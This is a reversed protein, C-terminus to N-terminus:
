FADAEMLDRLTDLDNQAQRKMMTVLLPQALKFFGGPEADVTQDVRTAGDVSRVAWTLTVPFPATTALAYRRGAEFETVKSDAELRRGLMKATSHYTTGVGTPGDSTKTVTQMNSSWKPSNSADSLVAFVEELPRKVTTSAEIRAM